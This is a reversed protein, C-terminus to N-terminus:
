HRLASRLRAELDSSDKEQFGIHVVQIKGNRDIIFSSPMGPVHYSDAVRGEPDFAVTFDAPVEKLFKEALTRDKDLNVAVVALGQRAYRTEMENMWPFSQRCPPCWSAWFDLYVVKGKLDALSLTGASTPLTFHPAAEAAVANHVLSWGILFITLLRACTRSIM